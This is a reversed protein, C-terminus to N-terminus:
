RKSALFLPHCVGLDRYEVMLQDDLTVQISNLSIEITEGSREYTLTDMM